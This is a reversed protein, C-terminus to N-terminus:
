LVIREMEERHKFLTKFHMLKYYYKVLPVFTPLSVIECTLNRCTFSFDWSGTPPLDSFSCVFAFSLTERSPGGHLILDLCGQGRHIEVNYKFKNQLPNASICKYNKYSSNIKVETPEQALFM